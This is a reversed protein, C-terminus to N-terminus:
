PFLSRSEFVRRAKPRLIVTRTNILHCSLVNQSRLLIPRGEHNGTGLHLPNLRRLNSWPHSLRSLGRRSHQLLLKTFPNPLSPM